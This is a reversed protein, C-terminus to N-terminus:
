LETHLETSWEIFLEQAADDFCLYPLKVFDDAPAAGDQHPDFSALRDFLDRVAERAGKV